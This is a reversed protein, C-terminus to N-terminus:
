KIYTLIALYLLSHCIIEMFEEYLPCKSRVMNQQLTKEKIELAVKKCVSCFLANIPLQEVFYQYNHLYQWVLLQRFKQHNYDM